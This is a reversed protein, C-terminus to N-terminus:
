VEPKGVDEPYPPVPTGSASPAGNEAPAAPQEAPPQIDLEAQKAFSDDGAPPAVKQEEYASNEPVKGREEPPIGLHNFFDEEIKRLSEKIAQERKQISM